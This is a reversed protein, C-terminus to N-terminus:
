DRAEETVQALVPALSREWNELVAQLMSNYTIARRTVRGADPHNTFRRMLAGDTRRAVGPAPTAAVPDAGRAAAYEIAPDFGQIDWVLEGLPDKGRRM